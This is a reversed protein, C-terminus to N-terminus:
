LIQFLKKVENADMADGWEEHQLRFVVWDDLNEDDSIFGFNPIVVSLSGPLSLASGEKDTPSHFADEPHTHVQAIITWDLKNLQVNIHHEEEESVEYSVLTNSQKSIWAEKVLFTSNEKLGVWLIHGEQQKKGFVRLGDFTNKIVSKSINVSTINNLIM